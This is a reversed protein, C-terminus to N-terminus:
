SRESSDVLLRSAASLVEGRFAAGIQQIRADVQKLAEPSWRHRVDPPPHDSALDRVRCFVAWDDHVWKDGHAANLVIESLGALKHSGEIANLEGSVLKRCTTLIEDKWPSQSWHTGACPDSGRQNWLRRRAWEPPASGTKCPMCLGGTRKATAALIEVGCKSCIAKTDSMPRLRSCQQEIVRRWTHWVQFWLEM